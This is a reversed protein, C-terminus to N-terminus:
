EQMTKKEKIRKSEKAGKQTKQQMQEPTTTTRESITEPKLSLKDFRKADDRILVTKRTPKEAIRWKFNPLKKDPDQLEHPPIIKGDIGEFMAVDRITKADFVARISGCIAYQMGVLVSDGETIFYITESNGRVFLRDIKNDKFHADMNRGKIQNFNKMSDISAAFCHSYMRLKDMKGNASFMKITDASLQNTGNWIIPDHYMVIVSDKFSYSLSDSRGQVEKRFIKVNGFALIQKKENARRTSDQKPSLKRSDADSLIKNNYSLLTDASLFLTDKGSIQRVYANGHMRTLGQRGYFTGVDGNVYLSDKKVYIQAKGKAVGYARKEDYYLDDGRLTYDKNDIRSRGQFKSVSTITNHEGRDAYLKSKANTIVTESGFYVIKSIESYQLNQSFINSMQGDSYTDVNVNGAFNFYKANTDYSGSYSKLNNQSDKVNGGGFYYGVGSNMSYDLANTTLSMKPDTMVVNDRAQAVRTNGNYFMRRATVNVKDNNLTVNGFAEITNQGPYRYASDCILTNNDQKFVMGKGLIRMRDATDGKATVYKENILREAGGPMLEIKGGKDYTKTDSPMKKYRITDNEAVNLDAVGKKDRKVTPIREIKKKKKDLTEPTTIQAFLTNFVCFLLLFFAFIYKKSFFMKYKKFHNLISYFRKKHLLQATKTCLYPNQKTDELFYYLNQLYRLKTVKIM